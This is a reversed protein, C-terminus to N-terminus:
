TRQVPIIIEEVDSFASEALIESYPRDHHTFIGNGARRQEGLVPVRAPERVRPHAETVSSVTCGSL